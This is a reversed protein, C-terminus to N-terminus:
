RPLDYRRTDPIRCLFSKEYRRNFCDTMSRSVLGQQKTCGYRPRVWAGAYYPAAEGFVAGIFQGIGALSRM